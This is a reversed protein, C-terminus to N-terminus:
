KEICGGLIAKVVHSCYLIITGEFIWFFCALVAISTGNGFMGMHLNISLNMLFGSNRSSSVLILTSFASPLTQHEILGIGTQTLILKIMAPSTDPKMHLKTSICAFLDESTRSARLVSPKGRCKLTLFPPNIINSNNLGVCNGEDWQWHQLSYISRLELQPTQPIM